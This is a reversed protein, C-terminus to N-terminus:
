IERHTKYIFTSDLVGEIYRVKDIVKGTTDFQTWIGHFRYHIQKEDRTLLSTGKQVLRGKIDWFKVKVKGHCRYKFQSSPRGNSYYYTFRRSEMDNKFYGDMSKVKCSDDWYEVWHGQRRGLHDRQNLKYFSELYACSSFFIMGFIFLVLPAKPLNNTTM